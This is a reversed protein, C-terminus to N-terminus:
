APPAQTRRRMGHPERPAGCAARTGSSRQSSRGLAQKPRAVVEPYEALFSDVDGENASRIADMESTTFGMLERIRDEDDDHYAAQVQDIVGFDKARDHLAQARAILSHVNADTSPLYNVEAETRM